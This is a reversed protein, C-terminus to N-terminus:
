FYERFNYSLVAYSRNDLPRALREEVWEALVTKGFGAPGSINLIQESSDFFQVLSDKIWNCTDESRDLHELVEDYLTNRVSPGFSPQLNERLWRLRGSRNLKFTWVNDCLANKSRWVQDIQQGFTADFSIKTRAGPKLGVIRQHYHSAITGVLDVLDCFIDVTSERIHRPMHELDHIQGINSLMM